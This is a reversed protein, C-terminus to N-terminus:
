GPDTGPIEAITNSGHEHDGTFAAQINVEVTVPVHAEALRALRNYHEIMFVAYPLSILNERLQARSVLNITNDDRVIGTDGHRANDRSPLLIAAVGEDEM